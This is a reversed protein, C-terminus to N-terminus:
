PRSTAGSCRSSAPTPATWGPSATSCISKGVGSPGMVAVLESPSVELDLGRLVEIKDDGLPYSKELGRVSVTAAM